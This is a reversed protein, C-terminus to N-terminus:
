GHHVGQDSTRPRVGQRGPDGTLVQVRRVQEVVLHDLYTRVAVVLPPRSPGTDAAPGGKASSVASVPEQISAPILEPILEPTMGANM